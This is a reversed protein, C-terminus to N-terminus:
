LKNPSTTSPAFKALKDLFKTLLPKGITLSPNTPAELTRKVKPLIPTVLFVM